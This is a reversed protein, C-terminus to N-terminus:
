RPARALPIGLQGDDVAHLLPQRGLQLEARDDVQHTVLNALCEMRIGRVNKQIVTLGLKNAPRVVDLPAMPM